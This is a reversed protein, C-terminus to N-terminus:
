RRRVVDGTSPARTWHEARTALHFARFAREAQVLHRSPPLPALSADGREGAVARLAAVAVHASASGAPVAALSLAAAVQMSTM